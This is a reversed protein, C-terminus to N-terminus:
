QEKLRDKKIKICKMILEFAQDGFADIDKPLLPDDPEADSWYDHATKITSQRMRERNEYFMDCLEPDLLQSLKFTIFLTYPHAWMAEPDSLCDMLGDIMKQKDIEDITETINEKKLLERIIESKSIKREKSMKDLMESTEPDLSFNVVVKSM